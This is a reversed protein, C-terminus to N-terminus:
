DVSDAAARLAAVDIKQMSLMAKMARQAREPDPDNLIDEMGGPVVQWSLGYRDRLWGCQSEVGGETLKEWFYDVEAQDACTIMFSIAESFTFLPGGNLGMFRQGDLQFEVTFVSGAPGPGVETYRTVSTVESNPFVSAYFEAAELAESDFWLFPTIPPV